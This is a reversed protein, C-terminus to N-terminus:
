LRPSYSARAANPSTANLQVREWKAQIRPLHVPHQRRSAHSLIARCQAQSLLDVMDELQDIRAIDILTKALKLPNGRSFFHDRMAHNKELCAVVLCRDILKHSRGAAEIIAEVSQINGSVVAGEVHARWQKEPVGMRAYHPLIRSLLDPQKRIAWGVSDAIAHISPACSPDDIAAKLIVELADPFGETTAYSLLAERKVGFASSLLLPLLTHHGQRILITGAEYTPLDGEVDNLGLSARFLSEDGLVAAKLLASECQHLSTSTM